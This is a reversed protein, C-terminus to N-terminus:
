KCIEACEEYGNNLASEYATRGENDVAAKNAGREILMKCYRSKGNMAASMLATRGICSTKNIDEVDNDIIYQFIADNEFAAATGLLTDAESSYDVNEISSMMRIFLQLSASEQESDSGIENQLLVISAWLPHEGADNTVIPNAGYDLLDNAIEFRDQKGSNLALLLPSSDPWDIELNPDAGCELLIKVKPEDGNKCAFHLPRYNADGFFKQLSVPLETSNIGNRKSQILSRFDQADMENESIATIIKNSCYHPYGIYSVGGILLLVLAIVVFSIVCRRKVKMKGERLEDLRVIM